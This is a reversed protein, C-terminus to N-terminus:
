SAAAELQRLGAPLLEALTSGAIAGIRLATIGGQYDAVYIRAGNGSAALCSLQGGIVISDVVEHSATNLVVIEDRDIFYVVEGRGAVTLQTPLGGVSITDMVRGAVADVVHVVGGLESDWGTAFLKRGDPHVAIDAITGRLPVIRVLAQGDVDIVAVAGGSVTTLAAYLSGGDASVRVADVSAGPANAIEVVTSTGSEIDIIAVEALDDGNRAVFLLDGAPSVALGGVTADIDKAAFPIGTQTDVAVVSDGETFSSSVYARDAIAVAYPEAVDTITATVTMTATDIVTLVDASYHAAVLYRGDPSIGLDSIPGHKAAVEGMVSTAPVPLPETLPELDGLGLVQPLLDAIPARRVDPLTSLWLSNPIETREAVAVGNGAGAAKRAAGTSTMKAGETLQGM